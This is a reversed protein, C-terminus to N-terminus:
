RGEQLLAARAWMVAEELKTIALERERSDPMLQCILDALNFAEGVVQDYCPDALHSLEGYGFRSALDGM